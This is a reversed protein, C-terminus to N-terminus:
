TIIFILVQKYIKIYTVHFFSIYRSSSYFNNYSITQSYYNELNMTRLIIGSDSYFENKSIFLSGVINDNRIYTDCTLNNILNNHAIEGTSKENYIGIDNSDFINNKVCINSSNMLRLGVGNNKFISNTVSINDSLYFFLSAKDMNTINSSNLNEITINKSNIFSLGTNCNTLFMKKILLQSNEILMGNNSFSLNIEAIENNGIDAANSVFVKDFYAINDNDLVYTKDLSTVTLSGEIVIKTHLNLVKGSEIRITSPSSVVLSSNDTFTTNEMVVLENLGTLNIEYDVINEVVLNEYLTINDPLQNQKIKKVSYGEFLFVCIYSNVDNAEYSFEGFRNTKTVVVPTDLRYDWTINNEDYNFIAVTINESTSENGSLDILNVVGNYTEEDESSSTSSDCSCIIILSSLLM